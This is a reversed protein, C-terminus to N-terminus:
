AVIEGIMNGQHDLDILKVPSIKNRLDESCEALVRIYNDTLGSLYTKGNKHDIKEWLVNALQGLYKDLFREQSDSFVDRMIQSRNKRLAPAVQDLLTAAYTGPMASFSFVHGGSFQMKTVFEISEQFDEDTEGPFGVIIDTTIALGNIKERATHVLAQFTAPTIRRAMRKLIKASGSQLPIHLHRCLRSDKWLDFIESDLDWPEISSLRLRKIRQDELISAILDGIQQKPELDKGWSGLQVGSLVIEAAEGELAAHIERKIVDLSLSKSKGRAIRTICYTCHEDCGDQVKIFARTRQRIGPIPHRIYKYDNLTLGKKNFLDLVLNEKQPNPVINTVSKLSAAEESFLTVWCGTVVLKNAPYAAYHRIMKRSDAAAKATVCCTNIIIVDAQSPDSLINHGLAHLQNAMTEIESQNLRCGVMDFYFNM